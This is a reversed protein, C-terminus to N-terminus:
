HVRSSAQTRARACAQPFLREGSLTEHLVVGAAWVDARADLGELGVAGEALEPSMYGGTGAAGGPLDGCPSQPGGGLSAPGGALASLRLDTLVATGGVVLINAPTM